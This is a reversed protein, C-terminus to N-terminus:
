LTEDSQRQLEAGYQFILSLLYLAAAVLLFDFNYTYNVTCSTVTDSLFLSQLNYTKFFISELYLSVASVAAGGFLAIFSLRKINGPVNDDFPRAEKMPRLINRILRLVFCAFILGGMIAVAGSLILPRELDYSLSGPALVFSLEGFRISESLIVGEPTYPILVAVFNLVISLVSAGVCIWFLISLAVDLIKATKQIKKM